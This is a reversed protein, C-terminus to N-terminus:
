QVTRPPVVGNDFDDPDWTTPAGPQYQSVSTGAPQNVAYVLTGDVDWANRQPLPSNQLAESFLGWFDADQDVWDYRYGIPAVNVDRNNRIRVNTPDGAWGVYEVRARQTARRSTYRDSAAKTLVSGVVDASFEWHGDNTNGAGYTAYDPNTTVGDALFQPISADNPVFVVFFDAEGISDEMSGFSDFNTRELLAAMDSGLVLANTPVDWDLFNYVTTSYLSPMRHWNSGVGVEGVFDDPWEVTSRCMGRAMDFVLDARTAPTIGTNGNIVYDVSVVVQSFFEAMGDSPNYVLDRGYMRLAGNEATNIGPKVKVSV